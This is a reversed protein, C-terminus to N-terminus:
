FTLEPDVFYGLATREARLRGSAILRGVWPQGLDLQRCVQRVTLWTAVDIQMIQRESGNAARM